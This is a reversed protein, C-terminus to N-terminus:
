GILDCILKIFKKGAIGIKWLKQKNLFSNVVNEGPKPIETNDPAQNKSNPTESRLLTPAPSPFRVRTALKSSQFEVM